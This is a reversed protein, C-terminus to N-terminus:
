RLTKGLEELYRQQMEAVVEVLGVMPGGWVGWMRFYTTAGRAVADVKMRAFALQARLIAEADEGGSRSSAGLV